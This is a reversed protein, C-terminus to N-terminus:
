SEYPLRNKQGRYYIWIYLIILTTNFFYKLLTSEIFLKTSAWWFLLGIAIYGVIRKWNYPIPYHRNGLYASLILMTLYSALHAWAAAHYSYLPMLVINIILTVPLGVLTIIIAWNTKESLKYWMSLNFNIGLLLYSLLMVPVISLGERFHSGILYQIIDIYFLIALFILTGIATFHEMVKAYLIRSGREGEKAFFFPEAAFRFMQIFLMMLMSIKVGAQFIGLESEWKLGQPAFFRFLVRDAFDNLIGPLGAIMIPISYRMMERWLKPAIQLKVKFLDPLFILLSVVTSLFIAFLIYTYDPTASVFKLLFSNPHGKFYSPAGFFLLFNFLTESLIKISKLTAFKVARNLFRLQAFLIATISDLLLIAAVFFILISQGRYGLSIAISERFLLLLAFLTGAVIIVTTLANSFVLNPKQGKNAFRFCGTELGLTLVVQLIAIYALFETAVGYSETTLKYTYLPVFIFNIFRAFITSFGYILTEGALKKLPNKSM